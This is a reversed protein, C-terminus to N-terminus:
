LTTFLFVLFYFLIHQSTDAFLGPFGHLWDPFLFPLSCHSPNASLSPKLGSHPPSPHHTTLGHFRRFFHSPSDSNSLNTRPQCLPLRVLLFSRNYTSLIIHISSRTHGFIFLSMMAPRLLRTTLADSQPTLPGLNSDRRPCNHKDRCSSRYVTKLVPQAGKSCHKPRSLRIGKTPRYFSYWSAPQIIIVIAITSTSSLQWNEASEYGLHSAQNSPQRGGPAWDAYILHVPYVRAIVKTM